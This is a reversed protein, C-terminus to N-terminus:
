TAELNQGETKSVITRQTGARYIQSKAKNLAQEEILFQGEILNKYAGLRTRLSTSTNPVLVTGRIALTVYSRVLGRM